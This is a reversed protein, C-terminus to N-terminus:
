QVNQSLALTGSVLHEYYAAAFAAAANEHPPIYDRFIAGPLRHKMAAWFVPWHIARASPRMLEDNLAKLFPDNIALRGM